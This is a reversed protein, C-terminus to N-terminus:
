LIQVGGNRNNPLWLKPSGYNENNYKTVEYNPDIYENINWNNQFQERTLYEFDKGNTEGGRPNRTTHGPIRVMKANKELQNAITTKGTASGGTIIISKEFNM